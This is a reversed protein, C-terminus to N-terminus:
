RAAPNSAVPPPLTEGAKKELLRQDATRIRATLVRFIEFAIEPMQFILEKLREGQLSLLRADRSAVVTASRPEDDLIAMEGFYSVAKLTTLHLEQPTGYNKVVRVEGEVLIYLQDGLDGERFIVEGELYQVETMIQSIAELQELNLHAFLPVKRLVLLREMKEELPSTEPLGAGDGAAGLRIWRDRAQRARELAEQPSRPPSVLTLVAPIKEELPGEELMLVLLRSAELDGLNSLVELADARARASEFRLVKEVTRMVAADELSELIRFALHRNRAAADEYALRLFRAGLSGNGPLVQLALLGAWAERVRRRLQEALAERGRRSGSAALATIAAEVTSASDSDLYPLVAEAGAEGLRGLAASAARRVEWSPDALARALAAIAQPDGELAALCSVAARRVGPDPHELEQSLREVELPLPRALEALRELALARVTPDPDQSREMALHALEPTLAQLAALVQPTSGSRAMEVLVPRGPGRLERAAQARVRPDPDELRRLLAAGVAQSEEPGVLAHLAALRVEADPDELAALVAQEVKDWLADALADLCAKRVRPNPHSLSRLLPDYIGRQVLTHALQLAAPSPRHTEQAVLDDWLGALRAVEWHGMEGSLEVLDLRGAKLEDVLTHLYEQRVKLNSILYLLALGAGALCLLRPDLGRHRNYTDWLLLAVGATVMGSYVVVGEVFSRIRGRFRLPLANYVLSRLPASVSNELTERTMRAAIAAPLHFSLALGAFSLLTLTPHVLTAGPVGLRAILWPTLLVEIGVELLNTLGLYIGFFTALQGADPFSRVFIASYLYQAVFLALVMGLASVVMWRGLRSRRIYRIASAMNEVSTEDGEELALPGWRRLQRRATRLLLAGGLLFLVWGGLLVESGLHSSLVAAALGGLAGGLSQGVVFLPFLRKAALTDFYDGAFVWYHNTFVALTLYYFCFLLPFIALTGRGVLPFSAAILAAAGTLLFIYLVDNRARNVLAAYAVSGLVTLLSAGIFTYPLWDVGLRALLLAESGAQGLTQALSVLGGLSM